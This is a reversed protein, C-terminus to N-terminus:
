KHWSTAMAVCAAYLTGGTMYVSSLALAALTPCTQQSWRVLYYGQEGELIAQPREGAQDQTPEGRIPTTM